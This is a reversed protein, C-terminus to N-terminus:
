ENPLHSITVEAVVKAKELKKKELIEKTRKFYIDTTEGNKIEDDSAVHFLRMLREWKGAKCEQLSYKQRLCSKVTKNFTRRTRKAIKIKHIFRTSM